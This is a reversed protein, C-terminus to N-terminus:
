LTLELQRDFPEQEVHGRHPLAADVCGMKKYFEQSEVASHASIYLKGAGHAKAWEAADRFLAAGVGQGRLERSVHLSALDMYRHEGGFLEPLVAAFGKLRGDVFAAHVLGGRSLTDKLCDVLTRYDAESWDDVFPDDRIVWEGAARRWCKTVEQRRDFSSFLPLGLEEPELERYEAVPGPTNQFSRELARHFWLLGGEPLRAAAVAMPEWLFELYAWLAARDGPACDLQTLRAVRAAERGWRLTSMRWAAGGARQGDLLLTVEGEGTRKLEIM